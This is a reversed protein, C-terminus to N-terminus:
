IVCIALDCKGNDARCDLETLVFLAITSLHSRGRAEMDSAAPWRGTAAGRTHDDGVVDFM